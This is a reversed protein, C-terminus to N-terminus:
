AAPPEITTNKGEAVDYIAVRVIPHKAKIALGAAEAAEFTVFSGKMQRDVELRFRGAEPRKRQSFLEPPSEIPASSVTLPRPSKPVDRSSM